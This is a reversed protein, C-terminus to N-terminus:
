RYTDQKTGVGRSWDRVTPITVNLTSTHAHQQHQDRQETSDQHHRHPYREHAPPGLVPSAPCEVRVAYLRQRFAVADPPIPRKNLVAGTVFGDEGRVNQGS